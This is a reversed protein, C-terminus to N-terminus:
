TKKREQFGNEKFTTLALVQDQTSRGPRLGAQNVCMVAMVENTIQQLIIRELLMYCISLRYIPRYSSALKPDKVPKLIVIVKVERWIKPFQREHLIHCMLAALLTKSRPGLKRLFEM